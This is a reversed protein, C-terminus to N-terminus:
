GRVMSRAAYAAGLALVASLTANYAAMSLGFLTWDISDCSKGLSAIPQDRFAEFSMPFNGQAACAGAQWWHQEVGVHYFALVSGSAFIACVLWAVGRRDVGPVTLAAASLAIATWYPIRQYRCLLCPEFGFGYQSILAFALAGASTALIAWFFCRPAVLPFAM